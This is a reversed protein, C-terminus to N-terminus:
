ATVDIGFRQVRAREINALAREPVIMRIYGLRQNTQGRKTLVSPWITSASAEERARASLRPAPLRRDGVVGLEANYMRVIDGSRSGGASRCHASSLKAGVPAAALSRPAHLLRSVAPSRRRHGKSRRREDARARPSVDDPPERRARSRIELASADKGFSPSQSSTQSVPIWPDEAGLVFLIPIKVRDVAAFSDIDMQGRWSSKARDAPLSQPQPLYMLHYWPQMDIKDLAAVATSRSNAGRYYGDLAKRAALMAQIDTEGYGLVHLRNSMAFEMQSEATVLPASVAVAFAARPDHSAALTALWGGQSIGWYGVRAADIQAMKRIARAGAIGDDALTQYAVDKSGTSAGTGRRDFLLVAIGVQPLGERLHRYLPTSALPESAGHFVVVAPVDHGVQPVYLTGGLTAGHNSFTLHRAVVTTTAPAAWPAAAGAVGVSAAMLALVGLLRCM